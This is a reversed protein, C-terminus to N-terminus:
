VCEAGSCPSLQRAPEHCLLRLMTRREGSVNSCDTHTCSIEALVVRLEYVDIDELWRSMYLQELACDAARLCARPGVEQVYAQDCVAELQVHMKYAPM